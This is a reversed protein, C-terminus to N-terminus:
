KEPCATHWGIFNRICHAGKTLTYIRFLQSVAKVKFAKKYEHKDLFTLRVSVYLERYIAFAKLPWTNGIIPM